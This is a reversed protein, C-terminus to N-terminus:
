AVPPGRETHTSTIEPSSRLIYTREPLYSIWTRQIEFEFVSGLVLHKLLDLSDFSDLDDRSEFKKIELTKNISGDCSTHIDSVVQVIGSILLLVLFLKRLFLSCM